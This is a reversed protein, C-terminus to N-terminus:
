ITYACIELKAERMPNTSCAQISELFNGRTADSYLDANPSGGLAGGYVATFEFSAYKPGNKFFMFGTDYDVEGIKNGGLVLNGYSDDYIMEGIRSLEKFLPKQWNSTSWNGSPVSGAGLLTSYGGTTYDATLIVSPGYTGSYAARKATTLNFMIDGDSISFSPLALRHSNAGKWPALQSIAHNLKYLVGGGSKGNGWTTDTGTTILVNQATGGDLTLTFGYKTNAALGSETGLTQGKLGFYVYSNDYFRICVSGPTYYPYTTATTGSADTVTGHNFLGTKGDGLGFKLNAVPAEKVDWNFGGESDTSNYAKTDINKVTNTAWKTNPTGATGTTGIWPHIQLPKEDQADKIAGDYGYEVRGNAANTTATSTCVVNVGPLVVSAGPKLLWQITTSASATADYDDTGLTWDPVKLAVLAAQEGTNGIAIMNANRITGVPITDRLRPNIDLVDQLADGFPVNVKITKKEIYDFAVPSSSLGSVSVKSKKLRKKGFKGNISIAM